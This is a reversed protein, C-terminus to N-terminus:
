KQHTEHFKKLYERIGDAAQHAEEETRFRNHIRELESDIENGLHKLKIVKTCGSISFYEDGFSPEWRKPKRAAKWEMWAEQGDFPYKKMTEADPYLYALGTPATFGAIVITCDNHKVSIFKEDVGTLEVDGYHPHFVTNGICDKLLEGLNLEKEKEKMNDKLQNDESKDCNVINQSLNRSEETYPELDSEKAFCTAVGSMRSLKYSRLDARYEVVDYVIQTPIHLVSDGKDFKPKPQEKDPLCKNGFLNALLNMRAECLLRTDENRTTNAVDKDDEYRVVVKYRPIMLMEEPETNSTLNHHGFLDTLIYTAGEAVSDPDYDPHVPMTDLEWLFRVEKRVEKPLSQWALDQQEKTM